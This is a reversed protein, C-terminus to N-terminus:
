TLRKRIQFRSYFVEVNFISFTQNIEKVCIKFSMKKKLGMADNTKLLVIWCGDWMMWKVLRKYWIEVMEGFAELDDKWHDIVFSLLPKWSLVVYKNSM